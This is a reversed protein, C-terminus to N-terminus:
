IGSPAKKLRKKEAELEELWNQLKWRARVRRRGDLRLDLDSSWNKTPLSGSLGPLDEKLDQWSGM